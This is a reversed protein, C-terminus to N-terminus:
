GIGFHAKAKLKIYDITAKKFKTSTATSIIFKLYHEIDVHEIMNILSVIYGDVGVVSIVFNKQIYEDVCRDILDQPCSGQRGIIFNMKAKGAEIVKDAAHRIDSDSFLKDKLENAIYLKGNRYIDLDSIENKSTGSQNVPHVCVRYDEEGRLFLEYLGAIALTLTEGGFSEAIFDDIFRYLDAADSQLSDLRFQFYLQQENKKSILIQIAYVLGEFADKQTKILPLGDCLRDLTEKDSGARVANDKNLESFRAPNNVFPENSGGMVKGLVTMEFPVLVKHCLTRADYAGELRSGAQLCLMNVKPNTAKALLATVLIYKYTKNTNELVADVLKHAKTKIHLEDHDAKAHAEELVKRAAEESIKIQGM